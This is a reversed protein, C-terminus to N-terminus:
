ASYLAQKKADLTLKGGKIGKIIAAENNKPEGNTISVTINKTLFQIEIQYFYDVQL